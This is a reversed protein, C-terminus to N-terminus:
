AGAEAPKIPLLPAPNSSFGYSVDPTEAFDPAQQMGSGVPHNNGRTEVLALQIGPKNSLLYDARKAAGRTSFPGRGHPAEQHIFSGRL